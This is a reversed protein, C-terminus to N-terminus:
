LLYLCFIHFVYYEDLIVFELLNPISPCLGISTMQLFLVALLINLPSFTFGKWWLGPVLFPHRSEGIWNLMKSSPRDIGILCSFYMFLM